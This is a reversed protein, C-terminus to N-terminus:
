LGGVDRRQRSSRAAALRITDFRDVIGVPAGPRDVGVWLLLKASSRKSLRAWAALSMAKAVFSVSILGVFQLYSFELEKLMYPTFFPGSFPDGALGGLFGTAAAM